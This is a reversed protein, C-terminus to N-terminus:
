ARVEPQQHPLEPRTVPNVEQARASLCSAGM